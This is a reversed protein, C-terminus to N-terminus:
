YFTWRGFSWGALMRALLNYYFTGRGIRVSGGVFVVVRWRRLAVALGGGFLARIVSYVVVVSRFVRLDM